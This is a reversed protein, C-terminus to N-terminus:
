GRLIRLLLPAFTLAIGIGFTWAMIPIYRFIERRVGSRSTFTTSGTFNLALFATVPPLPLLLTLAAGLRLGWADEPPRLFAAVAFPLAVVLGLIFGKTSFDHTPIWPLLIPFLVAGALIAAVAAPSSRAGGLWYVAVAVILIPLAAHVLEVPILVLRDRLAFRVRRMAPTAQHTKLYEPLDAARVPGYEVSFGSRKKVEHATVGPAGLQPLILRRHRVVQDLATAEIRSILEDTGFTGKGAACWVNIGATDLVLIYCDRGALASRLADFSLTYNATVFVSSDPTPSGLAYLGPQIRHGERNVGWRALFHDRRNASTLTATVPLIRPEVSSTDTGSMESTRSM